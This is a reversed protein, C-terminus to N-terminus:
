PGLVRWESSLSRCWAFTSVVYGTLVSKHQKQQRKSLMKLGAVKRFESRSHDASQSEGLGLVDWTTSVSVGRSKANQPNDLGLGLSVLCFNDLGLSKRSDRQDRILSRYPENMHQKMEQRRCQALVSLPFCNGRGETIEDLRLPLQLRRLTKMIEQAIRLEDETAM